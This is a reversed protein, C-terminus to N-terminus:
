PVWNLLLCHLANAYVHILDHGVGEGLV